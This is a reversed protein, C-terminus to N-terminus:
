LKVLPLALKVRKGTDFFWSVTKLALDARLGTNERLFDM